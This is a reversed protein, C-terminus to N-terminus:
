ASGLRRMIEDKSRVATKPVDGKLSKMIADCISGADSCGRKELERPMIKTLVAELDDLGFNRVDVGAKKFAIRITGRAELRGLESLQILRDAVSTFLDSAM